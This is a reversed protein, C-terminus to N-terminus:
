GKGIEPQQARPTIRSCIARAKEYIENEEAQRAGPDGSLQRCSERLWDVPGGGQWRGVMLDNGQSIVSTDEPHFRVHTIWDSHGRYPGGMPNGARDWLRVTMDWSGTAVYEGDRSITVASVWSKHGRLRRGVAERREVDWQQVTNDESGSAVIRGNLGFALSVIPLAHETPFERFEGDGNRRVRVIKDSGGIALSAGDPSLAIARLGAEPHPIVTRGIGGTRDHLTIADGGEDAFAVFRGDPTLTGLQTSEGEAVLERECEGDEVYLRSVGLSRERVLQTMGDDAVALVQGLPHSEACRRASLHTTLAWRRVTGDNSGSVMSRGDAAIAVSRVWSDHGQRPGGLENGTLDWVRISNDRSGSVLFAGASPDFALATVVDDHGHFGDGVATVSSGDKRWLRVVSGDGAATYRGDPSVALADIPKGSTTRWSDSDVFEVRGDSATAWRVSGDAYGRAIVQGARDVAISRPAGTEILTGLFHLDPNRTWVETACDSAIAIVQCAAGFAAVTIPDTGLNCSELPEGVDFPSPDVGYADLQEPRPVAGYTDLGPEPVATDEPAVGAARDSERHQLRFVQGKAGTNAAQPDASALADWLRLAGDRSGLLVLPEASCGALATIPSGISEFPLSEGTSDWVALSQGLDGRVFRWDLAAAVFGNPTLVVGSVPSTEGTHYIALEKPRQLAGLLSSRVEPVDDAFWQDMENIAHALALMPKAEAINQVIAATERRESFQRQVWAVIALTIAIVMGATVSGLTIRQVKTARRRSATVYRLQLPTPRPELEAGGVFQREAEELDRSRLLLSHHKRNDWERSRVLLRTHAKVRELDTDIADILTALAVDFDDRERIFIWNLERLSEPIEHNDAENRVLPILRKNHAVAHQLEKACVGSAVSAPSIVFVLAQSADIAGFIEDLWEATPPIGEWDVWTQRGRQKLAEHLRRVFEKDERAYSIFLDSM